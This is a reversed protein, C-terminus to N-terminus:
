EATGGERRSTINTLDLRESLSLAEPPSGRREGHRRAMKIAAADSATAQKSPASVQRTRAATRPATAMAAAAASTATAANSTASAFVTGGRIGAFIMRDDGDVAGADDDDSGDDDITSGGAAVYREIIFEATVEQKWCLVGPQSPDALLLESTAVGAVRPRSPGDDDAVGGDPANNVEDDDDSEGGEDDSDDRLWPQNLLGSTVDAEFQSAAAASLGAARMGAAVQAARPQLEAVPFCVRTFALESAEPPPTATILQGAVGLPFSAGITVIAVALLASCACLTRM